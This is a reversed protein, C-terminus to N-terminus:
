GFTWSGKTESGSKFPLTQYVPYSTIHLRALKVPWDRVRSSLCIGMLTKYQMSLLLAVLSTPTFMFQSANQSPHQGNNHM